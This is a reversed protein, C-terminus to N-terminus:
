WQRDNEIIKKNIWVKDVMMKKNHEMTKKKKEESFPDM